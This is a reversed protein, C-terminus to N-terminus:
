QSFSVFEVVAKTSKLSEFDASHDKFNNEAENCSQIMWNQNSNNVQLSPENLTPHSSSLHHGIPLPKLNNVAKDTVVDNNVINETKKNTKDNSNNPKKRRLLFRRRKKLSVTESDPIANSKSDIEMEIIKLLSSLKVLKLQLDNLEKNYNFNELTSEMIWAVVKSNLEQNPTSSINNMVASRIPTSVANIRTGFTIEHQRYLRHHRLM